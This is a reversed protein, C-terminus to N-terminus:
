VISEMNYTRVLNDTGVTTCKVLKVNNAREYERALVLPCVGTASLEVTIPFGGGIPECVVSIKVNTATM